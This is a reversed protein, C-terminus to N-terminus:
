RWWLNLLHFISSSSHPLCSYITNCAQRSDQGRKLINLSLLSPWPSKTDKSLVPSFSQIVWGAVWGVPSSGLNPSDVGLWERPEKAPAQCAVSTRYTKGAWSGPWNLPYVHAWQCTLPTLAPNRCYFLFFIQNVTWTCTKTLEVTGFADRFLHMKLHFKFSLHCETCTPSPLKLCLHCGPSIPTTEQLLSSRPVTFPSPPHSSVTVPLAPILQPFNLSLSPSCSRSCKSPSSLSNTRFALTCQSGHLPTLFHRTNYSCCSFSTIKATSNQISNLLNLRPFFINPVEESPWHWARFFQATQFFPAFIRRWFAAQASTKRAMKGNLHREQMSVALEYGMLKDRFNSLKTELINSNGCHPSMKRSSKPLENM